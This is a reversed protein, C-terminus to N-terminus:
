TTSRLRQHGARVPGPEVDADENRPEHRAASEPMTQRLLATLAGGAIFGAVLVGLYFGPRRPGAM